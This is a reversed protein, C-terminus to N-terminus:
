NLGTMGNFITQQLLNPDSIRSLYFEDSFQEVNIGAKELYSGIELQQKYGSIHSDFFSSFDASSVTNIADLIDDVGYSAGAHGFRDKQKESSM